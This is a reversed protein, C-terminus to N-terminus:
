HAARNEPEKIGSDALDSPMYNLPNMAAITSAPSGRQSTSPTEAANPPVYPCASENGRRESKKPPSTSQLATVSAHAPCSPQM